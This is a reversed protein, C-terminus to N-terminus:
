DILHVADGCRGWTGDDMRIIPYGSSASTPPEITGELEITDHSDDALTHFIARKGVIPAWEPETMTDSVHDSLRYTSTAM